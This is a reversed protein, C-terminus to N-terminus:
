GGSHRSDPSGRGRYYVDGDRYEILVRGAEDMKRLLEKVLVLDVAFAQAMQEATCPRRRLMDLLRQENVRVAASSHSKFTTAVEAEPTFLRALELLRSEPVSLTGEVAPPRHVTNLHIRDPKVGHVLAAIKEIQAPDANIGDVVFVEVWLEGRYEGRFARQGEVIQEFKLGSFPRNIKEFSAQDWASLSIKVVHAASAARRVDPIHMTTGNSLLATPISSRKRIFRLIEGFRSHLTPEGSGALTIYDAEARSQLWDTLEGLIEDLPIYERRDMTKETTKGVECFVCDFSCTKGPVLDVGLSRGLRRSPVPGFLHRYRKIESGTTVSFM